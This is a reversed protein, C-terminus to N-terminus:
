YVVLNDFVYDSIMEFTSEFNTWRKPSSANRFSETDIVPFHNLNPNYLINQQHLDEYVLNTADYFEKLFFYTTGLLMSAREETIGQFGSVDEEFDLNLRLEMSLQSLNDGLWPMDVVTIMGVQSISVDYGLYGFWQMANRYERNDDPMETVLKRVRKGQDGSYTFVLSSNGFYRNIRFDPHSRYTELTKTFYTEM